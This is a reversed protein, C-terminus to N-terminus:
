LRTWCKFSVAPTWKSEAVASPALLSETWTSTWTCPLWGPRILPASWNEAALVSLMSIASWATSFTPAPSENVTSAQIRVPVVPLKM